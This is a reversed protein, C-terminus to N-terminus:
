GLLSELSVVSFASETTGVDMGEEEALGCVLVVESDIENARCSLSELYNVVAVLVLDNEVVDSKTTDQFHVENDSSSSLINDGLIV